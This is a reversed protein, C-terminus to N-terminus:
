GTAKSMYFVGMENCVNGLRKAIEGGDMESGCEPSRFNALATRYNDLSLQLAEQLCPPSPFGQSGSGTTKYADLLQLLKQNIPDLEVTPQTENALEGSWNQVSLCYVDGAVTHAYTLLSRSPEDLYNWLTAGMNLHALSQTLLKPALKSESSSEGSDMCKKKAEDALAIHALSCKEVFLRLYQRKWDDLVPEKSIM